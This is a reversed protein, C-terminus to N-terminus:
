RQKFLEDRGKRRRLRNARRLGQEPQYVPRPRVRVRRGPVRCVYSCLCVCVCLGTNFPHMSLPTLRCDRPCLASRRLRIDRLHACVFLLYRFRYAGPVCKEEDWGGDCDEVGNCKEVSFIQQFREQNMCTIKDDGSSPNGPTKVSGNIQAVSSQSSSPYYESNFVNNDGADADNDDDDSVANQDAVTYAHETYVEPEEAATPTPNTDVTTDTISDDNDEYADEADGEINTDADDDAEVTTEDVTGSPLDYWVFFM